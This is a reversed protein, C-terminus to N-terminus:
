GLAERTPQEVIAECKGNAQRGIERVAHTFMAGFEVSAQESSSLVARRVGAPALHVPPNGHCGAVVPGLVNRQRHVGRVARARAPEERGSVPQSREFQTREGREM